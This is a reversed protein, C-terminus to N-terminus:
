RDPHHEGWRSRHRCDRRGFPRLCFRREHKRDRHRRRESGGGSRRDLHQPYRRHRCQSQRPSPTPQQCRGGAVNTPKSSSNEFTGDVTATPITTRPPRKLRTRIPTPMEGSHTAVARGATPGARTAGITANTVRKMETASGLSTPNTPPTAIEASATRDNDNDSKRENQNKEERDDRNKEAGDNNRGQDGGRRDGKRAADAIEPSIAVLGLGSM